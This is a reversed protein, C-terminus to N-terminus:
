AVGYALRVREIEALKQEFLSWEDREAIAAWLAEIDDYLLTVPREAAFYADSAASTPAAAYGELAVLFSAFAEGRYLSAAPGALAKARRLLGGRWDFLVQEFPPSAAKLFLFLRDALEGDAVESRPILGLRWVIAAGLAETFATDFRALAEKLPEVEAVLSLCEALRYLNWLVANPQRGYAYLGTEDFYAATFGPDYNPLFRYPGYDFSEGTIVINDTNLVGHVFGAVMWQACLRAVNECVEGLFAAAQAGTTPRKARPLYHRVSHALLREIRLADGFAAFRQFTGIRIHSHSLRTLVSSRTPSPEDGRTLPEGTEFLAFSKSTYVGLAELMRTALVERIGGKLTLRGDATRSWPTRGSGKTALDLLRNEGDYLQAFLFGRGDGIEPNYAQFQHGHYRLALPGPLNDPLPQFKAFHAEFAEADLDGLGIRAAWRQDRYRLKRMPFDAPTVPDYFGEGLDAHVTSARYPLHDEVIRM